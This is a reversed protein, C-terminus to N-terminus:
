GPRRQHTIACGFMDLLGSVRSVQGSSASAGGGGIRQPDTIMKVQPFSEGLNYFASFVNRYPTLSASEVIRHTQQTSISTCLISRHVVNSRRYRGAM